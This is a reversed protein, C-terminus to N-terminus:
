ERRLGSGLVARLLGLAGLSVLGYALHTEEETLLLDAVIGSVEYRISTLFSSILVQAMAGHSDPFRPESDRPRLHHSKSLSILHIISDHSDLYKKNKKKPIPHHTKLFNWLSKTVKSFPYLHILSRNQLIPHHIKIFNIQYPNSASKSTRQPMDIYIVCGLKVCIWTTLTKFVSSAAIRSM